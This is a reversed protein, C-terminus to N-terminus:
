RQKREALLRGLLEMVKENSKDIKDLRRFIEERRTMEQGMSLEISHVIADTERQKAAVLSIDDKTTKIQTQIEAITLKITMFTSAVAVAVIWAINVARDIWHQRKEERIIKRVDSNENGNTEDKM